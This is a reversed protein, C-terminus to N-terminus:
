PDPKLRVLDVECCEVPQWVRKVVLKVVPQVFLWQENLRNDLQTTCGTQCCATYVICGNTLCTTLHTQCGTSHKHVRYLRNDIRSSLRNYRTFPAQNDRRWIRPPVRGRSEGHNIMMMMMWWWWWKNAMFTHSIFCKVSAAHCSFLAYLHVLLQGHIFHVRLTASSFLVCM